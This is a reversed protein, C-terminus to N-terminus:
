RLAFRSEDLAQIVDIRRIINRLQKVFERREMAVGVRGDAGVLARNKALKLANTFTLALVTSVWRRLQMDLSSMWETGSSVFYAMRSPSVERSIQRGGPGSATEDM